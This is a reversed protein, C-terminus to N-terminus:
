KLNGPRPRLLLIIIFADRVLEVLGLVDVVVHCLRSRSGGFCCAVCSMMSSMFEWFPVYVLCVLVDEITCELQPFGPTETTM